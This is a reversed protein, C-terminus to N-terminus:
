LFLESFLCRQRTGVRLPFAKLRKGKLINDTPKRFTGKVLNLFNGDIETKRIIKRMLPHQIKGSPKEADISLIMYNGKKNQQHPPNCQKISKWTHGLRINRCYVKNPWTTYNKINNYQQIRNAINTLSKQMLM